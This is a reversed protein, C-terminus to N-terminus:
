RPCVTFMFSVVRGAGFAAGTGFAVRVPPPLCVSLEFDIASGVSLSLDLERVLLPSQSVVQRAADRGGGDLATPQGHPLHPVPRLAQGKSEHKGRRSLRSCPNRRASLGQRVPDDTPDPPEDQSQPSVEVSASSVPADGDGLRRRYRARLNSATNAQIWNLQPEPRWGPRCCQKPSAPDPASPIASM